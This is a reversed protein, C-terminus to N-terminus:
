CMSGLVCLLFATYVTSQGGAGYPRCMSLASEHKGFIQWRYNTTDVSSSGMSGCVRGGLCCGCPLVFRHTGCPNCKHAHRHVCTIYCWSERGLGPLWAQLEGQGCCSLVSASPDNSRARSLSM